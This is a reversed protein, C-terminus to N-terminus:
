EEEKFPVFQIQPAHSEGWFKVAKTGSSSQGNLLWTTRNAGTKKLISRIFYQDNKRFIPVILGHGKDTYFHLYSDYPKYPAVGTVKTRMTPCEKELVRNMEEIM